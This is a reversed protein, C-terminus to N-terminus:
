VCTIIVCFLILRRRVDNIKIQGQLVTGTCVAGAGKINFCHDVAMFFPSSIDRKLELTSIIKMIEDKLYITGIEKDTASTVVMPASGFKTKSLTKRM